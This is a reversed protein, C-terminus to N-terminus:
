VANLLWGFSGGHGANLMAVVPVIATFIAAFLKAVERIPEWNFGNAERHEDPTWWLSLLAIVILLGDRVLNQLQLRTGFVGFPSRFLSPSCCGPWSRPRSGSIERRGSSILVM